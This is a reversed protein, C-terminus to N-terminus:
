DDPDIPKDSIWNGEFTFPPDAEGKENARLKSGQYILNQVRYANIAAFLSLPYFILSAIKKTQDSADQILTSLLSNLAGGIALGRTLSAVKMRKDIIKELIGELCSDKPLDTDLDRKHEAIIKLGEDYQKNYYKLNNYCLGMICISSSTLLATK